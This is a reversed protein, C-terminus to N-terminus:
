MIVDYNEDSHIIVKTHEKLFDHNADKDMAMWIQQKAKIRTSPKIVRESNIFSSIYYDYGEISDLEDVSAYRQKYLYTFNM